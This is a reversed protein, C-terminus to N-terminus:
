IGASNTKQTRPSNPPRRRVLTVQSDTLAAGGSATISKHRHHGGLTKSRPPRQSRSAAGPFLNSCPHLWSYLIARHSRCEFTGGGTERTAVHAPVDLELTSKCRKEFSTQNGGIPRRVSSWFDNPLFSNWIRRPFRFAINRKKRLENKSNVPHSAAPLFRLSAALASQPLAPPVRFSFVLPMGRASLYALISPLPPKGTPVKPFRSISKRRPALLM